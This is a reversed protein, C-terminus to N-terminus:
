LFIIKIEFKGSNLTFEIEIKILRKNIWCFLSRNRQVTKKSIENYIIKNNKNLTFVKFRM